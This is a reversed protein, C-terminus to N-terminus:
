ANWQWNSITSPGSPVALAAVYESTPQMSHLWWSDDCNVRPDTSAVLTPPRNGFTVAFSEPSIQLGNGTAKLIAEKRTWCEFFRLLLQHEDSNQLIERESEAFYRKAFGWLDSLPRIHEVDVGVERGCSVALLGIDGSNSVNFQVRSSAWPGALSPKGYGSYEFRLEGASVNLYSALIMRMRGRCAVFRHRDKDFRYRNAREREDNSLITFLEEYRPLTAILSICWVHIDDPDPAPVRCSNPWDCNDITM